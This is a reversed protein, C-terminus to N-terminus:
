FGEGVRQIEPELEIHFAERVKEQAYLMLESVEAARAGGRNVIFNAHKTSIQAGGVRSGKLGAQELLWGAPHEQTNKFISGVSRQSPQTARRYASHEDMRERVRQPEDAHLAVEAALVVPKPTCGTWRSRFNSNRYSFEIEQPEMAREGEQDWVLVANLQRSMDSGHAGANNVVAGGITGPVGIAWELGALGAKAANTALRPLPTGSYVWARVVEDPETASSPLPASNTWTEVVLGSIGDDGVLLNSGGGLVFLPTEWQHALTAVQRLTVCDSAHLYAEAPGGIRFTTHLALTENRRVPTVRELAAILAEPLTM